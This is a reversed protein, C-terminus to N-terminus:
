WIDRRYTHAEHGYSWHIVYLTRCGARIFVLVFIIGFNFRSWSSASVSFYGRLSGDFSAAVTKCHIEAGHLIAPFSFASLSALSPILFVCGFM